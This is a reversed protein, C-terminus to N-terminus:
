CWCYLYNSRYYLMIPSFIAGLGTTANVLVNSWLIGIAGIITFPMFEQFADKISSLYKNNNAWMGFAMLGNQFAEM